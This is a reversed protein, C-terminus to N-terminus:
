RGAWASGPRAWAAPMRSLPGAPPQGPVWEALGTVRVLRGTAGAVGACAVRDAGTLNRATQRHSLATGVALLGVIGGAVAVVVAFGNM